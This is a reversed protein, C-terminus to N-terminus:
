HTGLVLDLANALEVTSGDSSAGQVSLTVGVLNCDPPLFYGFPIGPFRTDISFLTGLDILVTGLSSPVNAPALAVAAFDLIAAPQFSTHDVAVLWLDGLVPAEAAVLAEPNPPSGLRTTATAEVESACYHVHVSGSGTGGLSSGPAGAVYEALGDGNADPLGALGLGFGNSLSSLGLPNADSAELESLVASSAGDFVWVRGAGPVGDQPETPAAILLEEVGDGTADGASAVRMGFRHAPDGTPSPILELLTGSAGSYIRAESVGGFASQSYRGVLIEGRGDGDRDALGAISIGFGLGNSLSYLLQGSAGSFVHVAHDFNVNEFRSVIVDEIGDGDVDPVGAVLKGFADDAGPQPDVLSFLLGGGAGSFAYARGARSLGGVSEGPAGVLVDGLGDGDLDGIGAVAAGFRGNAVPNPSDYGNLLPAAAGADAPAQFLYARGASTAVTNEAAYGILADDRGDGSADPVAAVARGFYGLNQPSPSGFTHVLNGTAGDFLYARGARTPHPESPAGVLVDGATGSATDGLGAVSHGFEGSYGLASPNPTTIEVVPAQAAGPLALLVALAFSRSRRLISTSM